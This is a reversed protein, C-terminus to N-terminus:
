SPPIADVGISGLRITSLTNRRATPLLGRKLPSHALGHGVQWLIWLALAAIMLLNAIRELKCSRQREFGLGFEASKTDRFGEEIQMRAKCITVVQAACFPHMETSCALLWPEKHSRAQKACRRSTCRKGFVTTARRHEPAGRYAILRARTPHSRVVERVGLDRPCASAEQVLATWRVWAERDSARVLDRGRIPGVWRWGQAAVARWWPAKFGADAVLIPAADAPLLGKLRTLFAKQIKAKGYDCQPHVEELITLTRGGVPVAARLLQWRQDASLASWDVLVQMTQRAGVLQGAFYRYVAEREACLHRNSLLRDVRKIAHRIQGGRGCCARGLGSVTTRRERLLGSVAAMLAGLRTEHMGTFRKLAGRLMKISCM